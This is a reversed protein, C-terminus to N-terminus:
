VGGKKRNGAVAIAGVLVVAGGGAAALMGMPLGGSKQTTEGSEQVMNGSRDHSHPIGEADAQAHTQDTAPASVPEPTAAVDASVPEPTAAVDPTQTKKSEAYLSLGGQTVLQEGMSLGETIEISDGQTEGTTVPVPEYFNNYEVFVLQKGNADVLATVPIMVGMGDPASQEIPSVLIGLMSDTEPNVQVRDVGGEAQFEDGHGAHSLVVTPAALTLSLALISSILSFSKM